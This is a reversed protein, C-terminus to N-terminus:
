MFEQIAALVVLVLIVVNVVVNVLVVILVLVILQGSESRKKEKLTRIKKPQSNLFAVEM